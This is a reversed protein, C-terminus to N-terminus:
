STKSEHWNGNLSRVAIKKKLGSGCRWKSENRKRSLADGRVKRKPRVGVSRSQAYLTNPQSDPPRL